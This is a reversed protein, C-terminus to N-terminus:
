PAGCPEAAGGSDLAQRCLALLHEDLHVEDSATMGSSTHRYPTALEARLTPHFSEATPGLSRVCEAIQVRTYQEAEWAAEFTPLVAPFEAPGAVRILAIASKVRAQDDEASAILKRLHGALPAAQPGIAGAVDAATSVVTREAPAGDSFWDTERLRPELLPVLETADGSVLWCVEIARLVVHGSQDDDAAITAALDYAAAAAPGFSGLTSLTVETALRQQGRVAAELLQLLEPVSDVAGLDRAATLLGFVAILPESGLEDAQARLQARLTPAFRDAHARYKALASSLPRTGAEQSLATEVIPLVREDGLRALIVVIDRFDKRVRADPSNWADPGLAAVQEALADAAPAALDYKNKLALLAMRRVQTEPAALQAGILTVLNAYSGRWGRILESALRLADIRRDPDPHQLENEILAIRTPVDDPRDPDLRALQALAALRESSDGDGGLIQELWSVVRQVVPQSSRAALNAAAQLIASRCRLDQEVGIRGQFLTVAHEADAAVCGVAFAVATRVAPDDDELWSIVEEARERLRTNAEQYPSPSDPDGDCAAGISAILEIAKGRGVGTDAALEFLFPLCAVTSDYVNGQHHVAGYLEALAAERESADDSALGRLMSPVDQASGYAHELEAWDINMLGDFVRRSHM